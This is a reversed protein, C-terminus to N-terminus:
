ARPSTVKTSSPSADTKFKRVMKDIENRFISRAASIQAPILDTRAKREVVAESKATLLTERPSITTVVYCIMQMSVHEEQHERGQQNM